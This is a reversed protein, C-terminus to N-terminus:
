DFSIGPSPGSLKLRSPTLYRGISMPKVRKRKVPPRGNMALLLDIAFDFQTEFLEQLEAPFDHARFTAWLDRGRLPLRRARITRVIPLLTEVSLLSQMAVAMTTRVVAEDIANLDDISLPCLWDPVKDFPFYTFKDVKYLIRTEYTIPEGDFHVLFEDESYGQEATVNGVRGVNM